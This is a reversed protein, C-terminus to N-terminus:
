SEEHGLHIMREKVAQKWRKEWKTWDKKLCALEEELVSIKEADKGAGSNKLPRMRKKIERVQEKISKMADLSEREKPTPLEIQGPCSATPLANQSSDKKDRM